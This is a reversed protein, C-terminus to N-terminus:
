EVAEAHRMAVDPRHTALALFVAADRALFFTPDVAVASDAWRASEAYNDYWLHHYALFALVQPDSPSLSAARRWAREADQPHMMEEHALGVEFWAEAYSSDLAIAHNLAEIAAARDELDVTGAVKGAVTWAEASS